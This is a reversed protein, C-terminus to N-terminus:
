REVVALVLGLSVPVTPAALELRQLKGSSPVATSFPAIAVVRVPRM